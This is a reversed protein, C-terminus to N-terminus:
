PPAAPPLNVTKSVAADMQSQFSAQMRVHFAVPVELAIPFRRRVKEPLGAVRRISGHAEIEELLSKEGLGLEDLEALVSPNVEVLSRGDLVRRVMAYAFIPEIGSSTSALLNITGTPAICTVAANRM